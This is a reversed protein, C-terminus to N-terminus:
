LAELRYRRAASAIVAHVVGDQPDLGALQAARHISLGPELGPLANAELLYLLGDAGLRYDVRAIDLCGLAHVVARTTERAQRAVGDPLRAPTQFEVRPAPTSVPLRRYNKFGYDLINYAREADAGADLVIETPELVGGFENDVAALYPVTLERGAIYEEILVGGTYQALLEFAHSIAEAPNDVVSKQTIGASTGESNPKVIVPFRLGSLDPDRPETVLRWGPTRVGHERAVLKTLHKNVLLAQVLPGSGTYPLGLRAFLATYFSQRGSDAWGEAINFVLDPDHERLGRLISEVPGSVELAIAAHGARTISSTLYEVTERATFVTEEADDTVRLNHAIAIRVDDEELCPFSQELTRLAPPVQTFLPTRCGRRM